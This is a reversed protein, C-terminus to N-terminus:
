SLRSVGPLECAYVANRLAAIAEYRQLPAGLPEGRLADLGRACREADIWCRPILNRAAEIGEAIPQASLM